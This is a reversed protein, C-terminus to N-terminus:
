CLIRLIFILVVFVLAVGWIFLVEIANYLMNYRVFGQREFRYNTTGDKVLDSAKLNLLWEQINYRDVKGITIEFDKFFKSLCSPPYNHMMPFYIIMQLSMTIGITHWLSAGIIFFTFNNIVLAIYLYYAVKWWKEMNCHRNNETPNSLSTTAKDNILIFGYAFHTVQTRDLVTITVNEVGDGLFQITDEYAIDLVWESASNPTILGLTKNRLSYWATEYYRRETRPGFIQVDLDLYDNWTVPLTV